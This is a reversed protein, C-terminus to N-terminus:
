LHQVSTECLAKLFPDMFIADDCFVCVETFLLSPGLEVAGLRGSMFECFVVEKMMMMMM